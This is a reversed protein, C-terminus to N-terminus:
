SLDTLLKILPMFLALVLLFVLLGTFFVAVPGLCWSVWARRAALRQDHCAAIRELLRVRSAPACDIRLAERVTQSLWPPLGQRDVSAGPDVVGSAVTAATDLPVGATLLDAMREAFRGSRVFWGGPPQFWSPWWRGTKLRLGVAAMVGLVIVWWGARVAASLAVVAKTMAPLQSGFDDFIKEFEPVVVASLFCVIGVSLLLVVLPYMAPFWWRADDEDRVVVDVARRLFAGEAIGDGTTTGPAAAAVLPIWTDPDRELARAARAADGAALTECLEGWAARRREPLERGLARLAPVVGGGVELVRDIWPGLPGSAAATTTSSAPM